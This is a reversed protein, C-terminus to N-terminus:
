KMGQIIKRINKALGWAGIIEMQIMLGHLKQLSM